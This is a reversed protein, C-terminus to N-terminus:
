ISFFLPFFFLSFILQGNFESSWFYFRKDSTSIVFIQSSIQQAFTDFDSSVYSCISQQVIFHKKKLCFWFKNEAHTWCTRDRLGFVEFVKLGLSGPNLFLYLNNIHHKLISRLGIFLLLKVVPGILDHKSYHSLNFEGFNAQLNSELLSAKHVASHAITGTSLSIHFLHPYTLTINM